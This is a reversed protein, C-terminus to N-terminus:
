GAVRNGGAAKARYLAADASEVLDPGPVGTAAGASVRAALGAAIGSWPHGAVARVLHRARTRAAREDAGPLLVAFEDGGLRACSDGSRTVRRMMDAVVTLVADGVAHGFTDNVAKFHDLDVLLVAGAPAARELAAQWGRRNLLGTLEDTAAAAASVDREVQLRQVTLRTRAGDLARQRTQEASRRTARALEVAPTAAALEAPPLGALRAELELATALLAAPQEGTGASRELDLFTGTAALVGAPDSASHARLASALLLAARAGAAAAPLTADLAGPEEPAPRGLLAALLVAFARLDAVTTGVADRTAEALVAAARDGATVPVGAAREACVLVVAAVAGRRLALQGTGPPLGRPDARAAAAAAAHQEAALEWLSRETYGAACVEHVLAPHVPSTRGTARRGTATRGTSAAAGTLLATAAALDGDSGVQGAPHGAAWSGRARLALAAARAVRDGGADALALLADVDAPDGREGTEVARVLRSWCDRLARPGVPDAPRAPGAGPAAVVTM